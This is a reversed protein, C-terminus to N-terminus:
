SLHGHELECFSLNRPLNSYKVLRFLEAMFLSSEGIFVMMQRIKPRQNLDHITYLNGVFGMFDGNQYPKGITKRDNLVGLDRTFTRLNEAPLDGLHEHLRRRDPLEQGSRHPELLTRLWRPMRWLLLLRAAISAGPQCNPFGM